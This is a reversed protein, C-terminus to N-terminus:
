RSVSGQLHHMADSLAWSTRVTAPATDGSEATTSEVCAQWSRSPVSGPTSGWPRSLTVGM